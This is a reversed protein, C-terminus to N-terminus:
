AVLPAESSPVWVHEEVDYEMGFVLVHQKHIDHPRYGFISLGKLRPQGEKELLGFTLRLEVPKDDVHAADSKAWSAFASEYEDYQEPPGVFDPRSVRFSFAMDQTEVHERVANYFTGLDVLPGSLALPSESDLADLSQKLLLLARIIASKGSSNRGFLLTIPRLEIWGTDEYGMFNELRIADLHYDSNVHM